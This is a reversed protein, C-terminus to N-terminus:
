HSGAGHGKTKLFRGIILTILLGLIIVSLSCVVAYWFREYDYLYALIYNIGTKGTTDAKHVLESAPKGESYLLSYNFFFTLLILLKIFVRKINM